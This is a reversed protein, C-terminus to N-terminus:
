TLDPSPRVALKRGTLRGGVLATGPALPLAAGVENLAPLLLLEGAIVRPVVDGLDATSLALLGTLTERLPLTSARRGAEHLVVGLEAVGLGDGGLSEPAVLGLLGADACTAWSPSRDLTAAVVSRVEELVSEM